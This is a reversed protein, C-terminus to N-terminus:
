CVRRPSVDRGDVYFDDDRSKERRASTADLVIDIEIDTESSCTDGDFEM